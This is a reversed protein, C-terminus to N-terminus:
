VAPNLTHLEYVVALVLDKRFSSIMGFTQWAQSLAACSSAWSTYDM